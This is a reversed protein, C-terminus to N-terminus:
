NGTPFPKRIFKPYRLILLEWPLYFNISQRKPLNISISFHLGTDKLSIETKVSKIKDWHGDSSPYDLTGVCEGEDLRCITSSNRTAFCIADMTLGYISISPLKARSDSAIFGSATRSPPTQETISLYSLSTSEHFSFWRGDGFAFERQTGIPANKIDLASLSSPEPLLAPIQAADALSSVYSGFCAIRTIPDVTFCAELRATPQESWYNSTSKNWDEIHLAHLAASLLVTVRGQEESIHITWDSLPQSLRQDTRTSDTLQGAQDSFTASIPQKTGLWLAREIMSKIPDPIHLESGFEVVKLFGSDDRLGQCRVLRMGYARSIRVHEAILSPFRGEDDTQHRLAGVAVIAGDLAVQASGIHHGSDAGGTKGWPGIRSMITELM